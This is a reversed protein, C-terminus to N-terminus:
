ETVFAFDYERAWDRAPAQAPANPLALLEAQAHMFATAQRAVVQTAGQRKLSSLDALCAEAEQDLRAQLRDVETPGAYMAEPDVYRYPSAFPGDVGQELIDPPEGELFVPFFLENAGRGLGIWALCVESPDLPLEVLFSAQLRPPPAVPDPRRQVVTDEFHEILLRRIGHADLHGSQQELLLTARGWRKLAFAHEPGTLALRGAFDLKSGDDDWWGRRIALDALGPALRTWDQRILAADSVARAQECEQLAWHRGAAELLYCERGDALLFVHDRAAGTEDTGQGHRGILETLTEVAHRASHSRELTLRVLDPGSLGPSTREIRSRWQTAAVAVHRENVGHRLGWAGPEHVGLVTFSHRPQPVRVGNLFLTEDPSCSRGPCRKLVHRTRGSGHHNVGLLAVGGVTATGLAVVIDTAM